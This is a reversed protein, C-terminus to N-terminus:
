GVWRWKRILRGHNTVYASQITGIAKWGRGKFVAGWANQHTPWLNNTDAYWRLDDATVCGQENSVIRARERMIQLWTSHNVEISALGAAQRRGAEEIDFFSLQKM